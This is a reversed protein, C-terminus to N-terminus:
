QMEGYCWDFLYKIAHFRDETDTFRRNIIERGKDYSAKGGGQKVRHSILISRARDRILEREDFTTM